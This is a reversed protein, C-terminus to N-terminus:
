FQTDPRLLPQFGADVGFYHSCSAEVIGAHVFVLV